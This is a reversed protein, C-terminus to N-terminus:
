RGTQGLIKAATRFTLAVTTLTPNSIGATPFAGGSALFLNKVEHSEMFSDTVSDAPDHGMNHGGMYHGSNSGPMMGVYDGGIEGLIREMVNKMQELGQTEYEHMLKFQVKAAPLGHADKVSSSLTVRNEDYPLQELFAGLTIFKGFLGRIEQKLEKGWLGSEAAIGSVTPGANERVLLRGGAYDGRQKHDHFQYTTATEFGQRYPHLQHPVKYTVYFKPHEMLQLGLRGSKNGLGQPFRGTQSNLLIRVNEVTQTALILIKCGVAQETGHEDFYVLRSVKDNEDVEVRAAQTETLLHFNPKRELKEVIRDSGFMAGIPCARCTSYYLCASRGQYPESNRAVPVSHMTIGLPGCANKILIDTDNMPFNGMPYPESRPPSWPSDQAGSVGMFREAQCYFKELEEYTVPWDNGLGYRSKMVFDNPQFRPTIAGWALSSGGVRRIAFENLEIDDGTMEYPYEPFPWPITERLAQEMKAFRDPEPRKGAELMLVDAGGEVLAQAAAAGVPGSGVIVIDHNRM